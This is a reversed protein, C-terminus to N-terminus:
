TNRFDAKITDEWRSRPRGVPGNGLSEFLPITICFMSRHINALGLGTGLSYYWGNEAKLRKKSLINVLKYATKKLRFGLSPLKTM